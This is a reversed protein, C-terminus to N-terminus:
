ALQLKVARVFSKPAQGGQSSTAVAVSPSSGGTLSGTATMQAVNADMDFKVTYPGGASGTVSVDEASLNNLQRLASQVAAATANYAIASTTQGNFTLTFSGGTPSGSITVTQTEASTPGDAIIGTGAYCGLISRDQLNGPDYDRIWRMGLGQYSQSAGFPVGAPVLPAQTSLVFATRHFAFGVDEPLANSVVVQNFGAIRGITADRLASDSGSNDYHNLHDDKLFRAEMGPGVVVLRDNTPVNHVNLFKRADVMADFVVDNGSGAIDITAAYSAGTMTDALKDELGEAVARVQPVLIQDAFSTIDLTLEEDTVRAGHYVEQDLTIDVSTEALDDLTIIGAGNFDATRNGRLNRVRASARAPIRITITDGAAGQFSGGANRWVCGPLVIERQLLGLATAAIREAKIFSNPM